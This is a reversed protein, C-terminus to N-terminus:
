LKLKEQSSKVIATIIRIIENAHDLHSNFDYNVLQSKQLLRLWYCPERSEKSAISMKSIFKKLSQAAIAEEVNAGVSTSSRLFQKSIVYERNETLMSYLKISSLAFDFSRTLIINDTKM